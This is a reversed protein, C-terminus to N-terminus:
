YDYVLGITTTTDTREKTDPVITNHNLKLSIEIAINWLLPAKVKTVSHFHTNDESALALLDTSFKNKNEFLHIYEYELRLVTTKEKDEGIKQTQTFGYGAEVKFTDTPTDVLTLRYGVTEYLQFDYGAFRNKLGRFDIFIEMRPRYRYAAKYNALYREATVKEPTDNRLLSAELEHSWREDVVKQKIGGNLHRSDSNGSTFIAGLSFSGAWGEEQEIAALPFSWALLMLGILIGQKM